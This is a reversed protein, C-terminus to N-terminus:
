FQDSDDWYEILLLIQPELSLWERHLPIQNFDRERLSLDGVLISDVVFLQCLRVNLIQYPSFELFPHLVYDIAV